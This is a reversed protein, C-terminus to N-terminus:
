NVSTFHHGHRSEEKSKHCTYDEWRILVMILAVDISCRSYFYINLSFIILKKKM